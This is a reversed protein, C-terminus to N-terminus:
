TGRRRRVARRGLWSRFGAALMVLTVVAGAASLAGSWAGAWTGEHLERGLKSVAGDFPRVRGGAITFTEVGRPTAVALLAAGPLSQVGVLRSLEMARSAQELARAPALPPAGPSTPLPAHVTRMLLSLPALAVLPWLMWGTRSHWALASRGRRPRSLLPGVLVLAIMAISAITVLAGAGVWLERHVREAVDFVDVPGRTAAPPPVVRGTAVDHFRPTGEGFAIGVSRRAPDLYAGRAQGRPDLSDLLAILRPVDVRSTTLETPAGGRGLIPRFALVIGSLLLLVIVPSLAIALWRHLRALLTRTRHSGHTTTSM